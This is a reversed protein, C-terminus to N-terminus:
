AAPRACGAPIALTTLLSRVFPSGDEAAGATEATTREGTARESTAPRAFAPAQPPTLDPAPPPTGLAPRPSTPDPAPPTGLRPAPPSTGLVPAMLTGFTSARAPGPVLASPPTSSPAPTPASSRATSPTPTPRAAPTPTPVSPSAPAPASPPAPTLTPITGACRVGVGGLTVVALPGDYVVAGADDFMRASISLTMAAEAAAKGTGAHPSTRQVDTRVVVLVASAVAPYGLQAGTAPVSTTGAEVPRGLVTVTGPLAMVSSHAPGSPTWGASTRVMGTVLLPQGARRNLRLREVRLRGAAEWSVPTAVRARLRRGSLAVFARVGDPDDWDGYDEGGSPGAFARGWSGAFADQGVAPIGRIELELGRALVFEGTDATARMVLVAGLVAISGTATLLLSRLTTAM